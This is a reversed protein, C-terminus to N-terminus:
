EPRSAPDSEGRQLLAPDLPMGFSLELYRPRMTGKDGSRGRWYFEHELISWLQRKLRIKEVRLHLPQRDAFLSAAAERIVADAIADLRRLATEKEGPEPPRDRYGDWFRCLIRHLLEGRELATLGDEPKEREGLGLLRGAFFHFRCLSLENLQSASWVQRGLRRRLRDRLRQDGIVGDYATFGGKWRIREARMREVWSPAAGGGAAGRRLLRRAKIEEKGDGPEPIMGALLGVAREMGRRRSICGAWDDPLPSSADRERWRISERAFVRLLEEVYPSPLREKGEGDTKPWSLVLLEEAAAACLFFSTLQ